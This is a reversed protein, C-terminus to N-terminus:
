ANFKAMAETAANKIAEDKSNLSDALIAEVDAKDTPEAVYQLAQIAAVKVEPRSDNKIVNVIDNYGILDQIKLPNITQEGNAKQAEIYQDLEDRQLKQIMALTYLAFIRNKNAADRPSLQDSLANEEPTLTEGKAIKEAIEIQKATPGELSNTDENIIDILGQMIPESVVQLAVEPAEQAYKAIKNITDAKENVDTSKLGKVLEDANIANQVGQKPQEVEVAPAAQEATSVAQAPAEPQPVVQPATMVSEPMAQPAPAAVPQPMPAMVPNQMPMTPQYYQPQPAQPQYMNAQPMQYMNAQPMQYMNAQPMQYMSSTLEPVNAQPTGQSSGYAQPNFINISVANAGGPQPYQPNLQAYNPQIM